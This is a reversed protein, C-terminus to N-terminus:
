GETKVGDHPGDCDCLSLADLLADDQKWMHRERVRLRLRVTARVTASCCVAPLCPSNDM